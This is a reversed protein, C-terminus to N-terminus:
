SRVLADTVEVVRKMARVDHVRVIHAGKMIAATVTAATGEMRDEPKQGTVAGIFSKRSTGVLIPCGLVAFEDLYKLLRMNDAATKGFGIGPDLIIKSQEIGASVAAEIRERFFSIIDGRICRYALDGTQMTEPVGRMHMLVVPVEHRAVVDAMAKDHTLASIDNVIEAGAEIAERAIVAKRTDISIPVTVRRMLNRIVPIVREREEELSVAEAGPRSSEGGVDIIDAGEEALVCAHEVADDPGEFRGGDSFSDPTVNVIGMVLTRKGLEVTRRPTELSFTTIKKHRISEVIDRGIENLGFPQRALKEALLFMQKESGMILADTKEVTCAVTDRAVAVDGGISLMEQKLINAVKCALGDVYLVHAFLKPVMATVGYPDVGIAEMLSVAERESTITLYRVIIGGKRV